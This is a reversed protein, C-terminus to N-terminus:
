PQVEVAAAVVQSRLTTHSVVSESTRFGNSETATFVVGNDLHVEAARGARHDFIIYGEGRGRGVVRLSRVGQAGANLQGDITTTYEADIVAHEVGNVLAFGAMTYRVSVNAMLATESDNMQMPVIQLWSDGIAVSEQPFDVWALALTDTLFSSADAATDDPEIEGSREVLTGDAAIQHTLRAARIVESIGRVGESEGGVTLSMVPARLSTAVTAVGADDVTQVEYTVPMSITFETVTGRTGELGESVTSADLAFAQSAGREFSYRLSVHDSRSTDIEAPREAAAETAIVLLAAVVLLSSRTPM